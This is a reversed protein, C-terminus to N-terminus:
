WGREKSLAALTERIRSLRDGGGQSQSTLLGPAADMAALFAGVLSVGQRKTPYGDFSAEDWGAWFAAEVTESTFEIEATQAEHAM